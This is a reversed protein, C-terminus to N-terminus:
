RKRASSWGVRHADGVLKMLATSASASHSRVQRVLGPLIAFVRFARCSHSFIPKACPGEASGPRCEMRRDVVPV